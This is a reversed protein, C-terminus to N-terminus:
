DNNEGKLLPEHFNLIGEFKDAFALLGEEQETVKRVSSYMTEGKHHDYGDEVMWYAEGGTRLLTVTRDQLEPSVSIIIRRIKHRLLEAFHKNELGIKCAEMLNYSDVDVEVRQVTRQVGSIKTM